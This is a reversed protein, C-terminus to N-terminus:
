TLAILMAPQDRHSHARPWTHTRRPEALPPQSRASQLLYHFHVALLLSASLFLSGIAIYSTCINMSM